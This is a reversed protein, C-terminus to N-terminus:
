AKPKLSQAKPKPSQTSEGVWEAYAASATADLVVFEPLDYPHLERLRAELAAVRSPSTKIVLQRESDQEVRGKWRYVSMMEPLVNVCAALREEVLTRALAAPDGDAGLTTLVIVM